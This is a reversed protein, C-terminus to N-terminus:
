ASGKIVGQLTVLLESLQRAQDNLVTSSAAIEEATAANSQVTGDIQTMAKSVQELGMKQESSATAIENKFIEQRNRDKIL